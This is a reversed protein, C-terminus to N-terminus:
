VEESYHWPWPGNGWTFAGDQAADKQVLPGYQAVYNEQATRELAVYEQFLAFAEADYPHTDLYLGLELIVFDLARLQNLPTNALEAPNIKLHFPLNLDKFLTGYELAQLDGYRNKANCQKAVFPVAFPVCEPLSGLGNECLKCSGGEPKGEPKTEPKTGPKTEPQNDCIGNQIFLLFAEKLLFSASVLTEANM